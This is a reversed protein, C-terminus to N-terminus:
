GLESLPLFDVDVLPRLSPLSYAVLHGTSLYNVLCVSDLFLLKEKSESSVRTPICNLHELSM